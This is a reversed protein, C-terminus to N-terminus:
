QTISSSETGCSLLVPLFSHFVPCSCCARVGNEKRAVALPPHRHCPTTSSVCTPSLSPSHCTSSSQVRTMALAYSLNRTMWSRSIMLPKSLCNLRNSPSFFYISFVFLIFALCSRSQSCHFSISLSFSSIISSDPLFSYHLYKFAEIFRHWAVIFMAQCLCTLM